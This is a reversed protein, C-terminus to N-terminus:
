ESSETSKRRAHRRALSDAWKAVTGARSLGLRRAEADIAARQEATLEVEIAVGGSARRQARTRNKPIPQPITTLETRRGGFGRPKHRLPQTLRPAIM